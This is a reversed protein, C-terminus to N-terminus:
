SVRCPERRRRGRVIVEIAFLEFKIVMAVCPFFFASSPLFFLFLTTRRMDLPARESTVASRNHNEGGGGIAM